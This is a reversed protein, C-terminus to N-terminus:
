YQTLKGVLLLLPAILCNSLMLNPSWFADSSTSPSRIGSFEVCAFSDFRHSITESLLFLIYLMRSMAILGAMMLAFQKWSIWLTKTSSQYHQGTLLSIGYLTVFITVLLSLWISFLITIWIVYGKFSDSWAYLRLWSSLEYKSDCIMPRASSPSVTGSTIICETMNQILCVRVYRFSNCCTSINSSCFSAYLSVANAMDGSVVSNDLAEIMEDSTDYLNTEVVSSVNILLLVKFLDNRQQMDRSHSGERPHSANMRVLKVELIDDASSKLIDAGVSWQLCRKCSNTITLAKTQALIFSSVNSIVMEYVILEYPCYSYSPFDNTVHNCPKSSPLYAVSPSSVPYGSSWPENTVEYSPRISLYASSPISSSSPIPSAPTYANPAYSSPSSTFEEPVLTPSKTSVCYCVPQDFPENSPILSPRLSPDATPTILPFESNSPQHSMEISPSNTLWIIAPPITSESSPLFSPALTPPISPYPIPWLTPYMSPHPSLTYESDIAPYGSPIGTPHYYSPSLTVDAIPDLSLSSTPGISPFSSPWSTPDVNISPDNLPMHMYSPYISPSLTPIESLDAIPYSIPSSSFDSYPVSSSSTPLGTPMYTPSSIPSVTSDYIPNLSLSYTADRTPFPTLSTPSEAQYPAMSIAPNVSSPFVSSPCVIPSTSQDFAPFSSFSATPEPSLYPVPFTTELISPAFSPIITPIGGDDDDYEGSDDDNDDDSPECHYTPKNTPFSTPEDTSCHNLQDQAEMEFSMQINQRFIAYVKLSLSALISSSLPISYSRYFVCSYQFIIWYVLLILFKM